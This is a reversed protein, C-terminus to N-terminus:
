RILWRGLRRPFTKKKKALLYETSIFAVNTEELNDIFLDPL